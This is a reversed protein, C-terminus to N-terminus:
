TSAVKGDLLCRKPLYVLIRGDRSQVSAKQPPGGQKEACMVVSPTLEALTVKDFLAMSLRTETKVIEGLETGNAIMCQRFTSTWDVLHESQARTLRRENTDAQKSGSSSRQAPTAGGCATLSLGAIAVFAAAAARSHHMSQM